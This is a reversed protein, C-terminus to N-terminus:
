FSKEPHALWVWKDCAGIIGRAALADRQRQFAKKMSDQEPGGIGRRYCEERWEEIDVGKLGAPIVPNEVGHALIAEALATRVLKAQDSPGREKKMLPVPKADVPIVLCTTEMEGDDNIGVDIPELKSVFQEGSPGDKSLEVEAVVNDAADRTVVIQVDAAATLSTHGRPRGPEIGCHHILVVCCQFEDEIMACARLYAAMDQDKSESGALTRNVTDVCILAPAVGDGLQAKTDDILTQADAALDPRVTCLHFRANDCDYKQRYAEIRKKFGHGGEAAFYVVDGERVRKGRYEVGRAVHMALDFAKFSKGCKPKGYILVLGKLPLIDKVLHEGTGTWIIQDFAVLTFRPLKATEDDPDPEPEASPEYLPARFWREDFQANSNGAEFYDTVDGGASLEPFRVLRLSTAIPHIARAANIAKKEGPEDNDVLVIVDRGRLPDALEPPWEKTVSGPPTTATYGRAILTEADKEGECVFTTADTYKTLLPLKYLVPAIGELEFSHGGGELPVRQFFGKKGDDDVTRVVEFITKGDADQYLYTTVPVGRKKTVSAPAAAKRKVKRIVAAPDTHGNFHKSPEFSSTMGLRQKVYDRCMMPDDGAFSHVVFGDPATASLKVSLSRDHPRHGPGPARVQNKRVEGGLAAAIQQASKM